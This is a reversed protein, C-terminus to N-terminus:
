LNVVALVDGEVYDEYGEDNGGDEGEDVETACDSNL